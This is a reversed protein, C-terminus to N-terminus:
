RCHLLYCDIAKERFSRVSSEFAIYTFSSYKSVELKEVLGAFVGTQGCDGM